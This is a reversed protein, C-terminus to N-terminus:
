LKLDQGLHSTGIRPPLPGSLRLGYGGHRGLPTPGPVGSIVTDVGARSQFGARMTSDILSLRYMTHAPKEREIIEKVLRLRSESNVEGRYVEVVFQSASGAFLPEGFQADTILYSHDLEATTGLVAGGPQMTPLHTTSGLQSAGGAASRNCDVPRPMAWFSSAFIPESIVAHVGADELLARRLGETTGRWQYRQFARAISQRIRAEPEGQDMDVALWTALWTLAEAPAAFPDFYRELSDVEDEVDEFLGQFLGVFRRLFDNQPAPERYIAPLYRTYNESDFEVRMQTLLPTGTRDSFFGAGIFLYPNRDGELLFDEVDKPLTKWGASFPNEATQDLPPLYSKDSIAYYFEVHSGPANTVSARLRDWTAPGADVSIADSWLFGSALYAGQPKLSLTKAAGTQVLLVGSSSDFALATVHGHFGPADGSFPFGEELGFSLIRQQQNDGVYLRSESVALALVGGMGPWQIAVPFGQADLVPMGSAEFVFVQNTALDSVFIRAKKGSGGVALAGPYQVLDSNQMNELFDTDPEGTRAFKLIRQNGADLIYLSRGDATAAVVWPDNFRNPDDSPSPWSALTTRGWVERLDLTSLDCFLVRDNGSDAIVLRDPNHLVLLGHPENLRGLGAAETLCDLPAPEPDCGRKVVIRNERPISYFVRGSNDGAIGSPAHPTISDSLQTANEDLLAPSPLLQLAGEPSVELGNWHFNLWKGERNLYRFNTSSSQM